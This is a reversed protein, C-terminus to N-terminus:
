EGTSLLLSGQLKESSQLMQNLWAQRDEPAPGAYPEAIVEKIARQAQWLCAEGFNRPKIWGSQTAKMVARDTTLLRNLDSAMFLVDTLTGNAKADAMNRVRRRWVMGTCDNPWSASGIDGQLVRNSLGKVFGDELFAYARVFPLWDQGNERGYVIDPTIAPLKKSMYLRFPEQGETSMLLEHARNLDAATGTDVLKSSQRMSKALYVAAAAAGVAIMLFMIAVMSSRRHSAGKAAAADEHPTVQAIRDVAHDSMRWAAKMDAHVINAIEPYISRLENLSGLTVWPSQAGAIEDQMGFQMRGFAAKVETLPLPGLFNLGGRRVLYQREIHKTAM